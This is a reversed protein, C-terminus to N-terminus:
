NLSKRRIPPHPPLYSDANMLRNGVPRPDRTSTPLLGKKVSLNEWRSPNGYKSFFSFSVIRHIGQHSVLVKGWPPVM